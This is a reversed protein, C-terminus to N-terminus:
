PTSTVVAVAVLELLYDPSSLNKVGIVQFTPPHGAFRQAFAGLQPLIADMDPTYVTAVVLNAFTLGEAALLRELVGLVFKVQGAPDAKAVPEVNGTAAVIGSFYVTNNVRVTQSVNLQEFVAPSVYGVEPSTRKISM